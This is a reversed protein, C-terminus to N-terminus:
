RPTGTALYPASSASSSLASPLLAPARAKGPPTMTSSRRSRTTLTGIAAVRWSDATTASEPAVSPLSPSSSRGVSTIQPSPGLAACGHQMEFDPAPAGAERRARRRCRAALGKCERGSEGRRGPDGLDKLVPAAQPRPRARPGFRPQSGPAAAGKSPSSVERSGESAQSSPSPCRPPVTPRFGGRQRHATAPPPPARGRRNARAPGHVTGM